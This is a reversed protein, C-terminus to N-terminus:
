KKFGHFKRCRYYQVTKTTDDRSPLAERVAKAAPMAGTDKWVKEIYAWIEACITGESPRKVGNREERNAQIKREKAAKAPAPQVAPLETPAVVVPVEVPAPADRLEQPVVSDAHVMVGETGSEDAGPVPQEPVELTALAVRMGDVNLGNYSIGNERCADRLEAKNMAGLQESNYKNTM